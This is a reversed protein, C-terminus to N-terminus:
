NCTTYSNACQMQPEIWGEYVKENWVLRVMAWQNQCNLIQYFEPVYENLEARIKSNKDPSSYFKLIKDSDYNRAYLGIEKEKKIWGVIPDSDFAYKIEVKFFGPQTELIDFFLFNEEETKNRLAAIELGDPQDYVKIIKESQWNVIGGCGAEQGYSWSTLLVLILIIVKTM